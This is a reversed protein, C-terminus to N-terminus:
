EYCRLVFDYVLSSTAPVDEVLAMHAQQELEYYEGRSAAEAQRRVDEAPIVPDKGGAIFLIPRPFSRLVDTRDPRDRMAKLYGVLTESKAQINLERVFPVDPHNGDAFLPAIFNSAYAKAGNAGIFAIAKDRGAKKEETDPRATSHFLGFGAFRDPERKVMALTVYGGLSHGIAVMKDIGLADAKRLIIGAIDDISFTGKPLPSDGFGPLDPTIVRFSSALKSTFGRWIASSMPFGHILVVARGSGSEHFVIDNAEESM